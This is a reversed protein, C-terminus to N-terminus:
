WVRTSFSCGGLVWRTRTRGPSSSPAVYQILSRAALRAALRLAVEDDHQLLLRVRGKLPHAVIEPHRVILRRRRVLEEEAREHRRETAADREGGARREVRDQAVVARADALRDRGAPPMGRRASSPSSSLGPHPSMTTRATQRDRRQRWKGRRTATMPVAYKRAGGTASSPAAAPARRRDVRRARRHRSPTTFDGRRRRSARRRAFFRRRASPSPPRRLARHPDTSTRLRTASGGRALRGGRALEILLERDRAPQDMGPKRKLFHAEDM